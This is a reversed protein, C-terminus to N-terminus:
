TSERMLYTKLTGKGKVDVTREEFAFLDFVREYTERSVQIRMAVGSSEMRSAVNIADGFVDYVFKLKGVIGASIAGTNIGIRIRIIKEEGFGKKSNYQKIYQLMDLAMQCMRKPHDASSIPTLGGVIMYADGITKIKELGHKLSLDDFATVVDNLLGILEMPTYKGSMVTFNCMDSFLISADDFREAIQTEGNRLRQAIRAPLINLLLNESNQKEMNLLENQKKEMTLDRAFICVMQQEDWNGLSASLRMAVKSGDRKRMLVEQTIPKKDIYLQQLLQTIDEDFLLQGSQGLLEATPYDLLSTCSRNVSQIKMKSNLIVVADLAAQIVSKAKEHAKKKKLKQSSNSTTYRIIYERISPVSELTDVDIFLLLQRTKFGQHLIRNWLLIYPISLVLIIVVLISAFTSSFVLYDQSKNHTILLDTVISSLLKALGTCLNYQYWLEDISVRNVGNTTNKSLIEIMQTSKLIFKLVLDNLSSGCTYNWFMQLDSFPATTPVLSGNHNEFCPRGEMITNIYLSDSVAYKLGLSNDSGVLVNNWRKLLEATSLGDAIYSIPLTGNDLDVVLSNKLLHNSNSGFYYENTVFNIQNLANRFSAIYYVLQINKQFDVVDSGYVGFSAAIFSLELVLYILYIVIILFRTPISALSSTKYAKASVVSGSSKDINRYGSAFAEPPLDRYLQLIRNKERFVHMGVGFTASLFILIRILYIVGAITFFSIVFNITQSEALEFYYKVFKASETRMQYLNAWVFLFDASSEVNMSKNRLDSSLLQVNQLLLRSLDQLSGQEYKFYAQETNVGTGDYVIPYAIICYIKTWYEEVRLDRILAAYSAEADKISVISDFPSMTHMRVQRLYSLTIAPVRAVIGIDSFNYMATSLSISFIAVFVIVLIPVLVTAIIFLYYIVKSQETRILNRYSEEKSEEEQDSDQQEELADIENTLTDAMHVHNPDNPSDATLEKSYKTSPDRSIPNIRNSKLRLKTMTYGRKSAQGSMLKKMKEEEEEQLQRARELLNMSKMSNKEFEEVFNSYCRVVKSQKYNRMMTNYMSRITTFLQQINENAQLLKGVPAKQIYLDFINKLEQRLQQELKKVSLILKDVRENQTTDNSANIDHYRIWITIKLLFNPKLDYMAYRLYQFALRPSNCFYLTHMAKLLQLRASLLKKSECYQFIQDMYHKGEDSNSHQIKIALEILPLTTMYQLLQNWQSQFKSVHSSSLKTVTIEEQPLESTTPVSTEQFFVNMEHKVVGLIFYEYSIMSVFGIIFGFIFVVVMLVLCTSFIAESPHQQSHTQVSFVVVSILTLLLRGFLTGSYIANTWRSYFPLLRFTFVLTVLICSM